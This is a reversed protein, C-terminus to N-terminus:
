IFLSNTKRSGYDGIIILKYSNGPYQQKIVNNRKIEEEKCVLDKKTGYSYTEISDISDKQRRKCM